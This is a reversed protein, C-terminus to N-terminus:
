AYNALKEARTSSLISAAEAARGNDTRVWFLLGGGLVGNRYFEALEEPVGLGALIEKLDHRPKEAMAAGATVAAIRGAIRVAGVDPMIVSKGDILVRDIGQLVARGPLGTKNTARLAAGPGSQTVPGRVIVNMEGEDFHRGILEAVAAKAEDYSEFLAFITRM